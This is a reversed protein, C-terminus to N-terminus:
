PEQSTEEQSISLLLPSFSPLPVGCVHTVCLIRDPGWVRHGRKRIRRCHPDLRPEFFGERYAQSFFICMFIYM